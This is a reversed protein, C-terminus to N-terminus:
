RARVVGIALMNLCKQASSESLFQRQPGGMAVLGERASV